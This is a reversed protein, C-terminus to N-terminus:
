EYVGESTHKKIRRSLKDVVKWARDSSDKQDSLMNETKSLRLRLEEIINQDSYFKARAKSEVELLEHQRLGDVLGEVEDIWARRVSNAIVIMASEKKMNGVNKILMQRYRKFQADTM